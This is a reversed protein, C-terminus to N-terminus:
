LTGEQYQQIAKITESDLTIELEPHSVGKEDVAVQQILANASRTNFIIITIKSQEVKEFLVFTKGTKKTYGLEEFM